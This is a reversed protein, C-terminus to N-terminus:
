KICIFGRALQYEREERLDRSLENWQHKEFITLNTWASRAEGNNFTRNRLKWCNKFLTSGMPHHFPTEQPFKTRIKPNFLYLQEISNVIRPDHSLRCRAYNKVAEQYLIEIDSVLIPPPSASAMKRYEVIAKTLGRNSFLEFPNRATMKPVVGSSNPSFTPIPYFCLKDFYASSNPQSSDAAFGAQGNNINGLKTQRQSSSNSYFLQEITVPPKSSTYDPLYIGSAMSLAALKEQYTSKKMTFPLIIKRKEDEKRQIESPTSSSFDQAMQESGQPLQGTTFSPAIVHLEDTSGSTGFRQLKRIFGDTDLAEQPVSAIGATQNSPVTTVLFM